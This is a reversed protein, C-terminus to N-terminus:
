WPPRLFHKDQALGICTAGFLPPKANDGAIAMFLLSQLLMDRFGVL